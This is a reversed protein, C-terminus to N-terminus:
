TEGGKESVGGRIVTVVFFCSPEIGAECQEFTTDRRVYRLVDFFEKSGTFESGKGRLVWLM